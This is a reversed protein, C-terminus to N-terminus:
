TRESSRDRPSGLLPTENPIVGSLMAMPLAFPSLDAGPPPLLESIQGALQQAEEADYGCASPNGSDSYQALVHSVSRVSELTEFSKNDHKGMYEDLEEIGADMQGDVCACPLRRPTFRQVRSCPPPCQALTHPLLTATLHSVMSSNSDILAYNSDLNQLRHWRNRVAHETRGPLKAAILAWRPGLSAVYMRITDDEHRSWSVRLRDGDLAGSRPSRHANIEAADQVVLAM